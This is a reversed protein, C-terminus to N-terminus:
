GNSAKRLISPRRSNLQKLRVDREHVARAAQQSAWAVAHRLTCFLNHSEPHGFWLVEDTETSAGTLFGTEGPVFDHLPGYHRPWADPTHRHEQERCKSGARLEAGCMVIPIKNEISRYTPRLAELCYLCKPRERPWKKEKAM